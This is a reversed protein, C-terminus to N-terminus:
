SKKNPSYDQVPNDFHSYIPSGMHVFISSSRTIVLARLGFRFDKNAAEMIAKLMILTLPHDYMRAAHLKKYDSIYDSALAEVDQGSYGQSRRKKLDDKFKSFREISVSGIISMLNMWYAIFSDDEHCNEHMQTLLDSDLSDLLMAVADDSNELDYSDYLKKQNNAESLLATKLTFWAHKNVVSVTSEPNVPDVLYTIPDLSGPDNKTTSSISTPRYQTARITIPKPQLLEIWMPKPQGGTWALTYSESLKKLGGMKPKAPEFDDPVVQTEPHVEEFSPEPSDATAVM